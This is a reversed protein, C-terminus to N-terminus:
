LAVADQIVIRDGEALLAGLIDHAIERQTRLTTM